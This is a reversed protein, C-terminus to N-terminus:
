AAQAARDPARGAAGADLRHGRRGSRDPEHGEAGSLGVPRFRGQGAERRRGAVPKAQKAPAKSAAAPKAQSSAAPKKAASPKAKAGGAKGSPSPKAAAAGDKGGAAKGADGAGSAKGPPPKPAGPDEVAKRMSDGAQKLPNLDDKIKNLPNASRV